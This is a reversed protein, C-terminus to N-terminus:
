LKNYQWLAPWAAIGIWFQGAYHLRSYLNAAPRPLKWRMLVVEQQVDALYVNRWDGMALGTFFLGYLCVLFLLGKTFRGQYIQGLGPVLYSLFGALPSLHRPGPPRPPKDAPEMAPQPKDLSAGARAPAAPATINPQDPNAM